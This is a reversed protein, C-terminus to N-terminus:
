GIKVIDGRKPRDLKPLIDQAEQFLQKEAQAENLHQNMATTGNIRDLHERIYLTANADESDVPMPTKLGFVMFEGKGYPYDQSTKTHFSDFPHSKRMNDADISHPYDLTENVLKSLREIEPSDYHNNM